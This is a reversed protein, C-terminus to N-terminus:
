EINNEFGCRSCVADILQEDSKANFM